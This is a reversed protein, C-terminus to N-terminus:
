KVRKEKLIVVNGNPFRSRIRNQTETSLSSLSVEKTEVKQAPKSSDSIIRNAIEQRSKGTGAILSETNIGERIEVESPDCGVMNAAALEPTTFKPTNVGGGNKKWMGGVNIVRGSAAGYAGQNLRTVWYGGGSEGARRMEYKIPM